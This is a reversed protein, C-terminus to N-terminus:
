LNQWSFVYFVFIIFWRFIRGPSGRLSLSIWVGKEKKTWILQYWDAITDLLKLYITDNFVILNTYINCKILIFYCNRLLALFKRNLFFFTWPLKVRWFDRLNTYEPITSSSLAKLFHHLILSRFDIWFM